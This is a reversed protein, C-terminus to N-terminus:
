SYVDPFILIYPAVFMTYITVLAVLFDWVKCFTSETHIQYWKVKLHANTLVENDEEQDENIDNILLSKIDSEHKKQM